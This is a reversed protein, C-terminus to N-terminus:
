NSSQAPPFDKLLSRAQGTAGTETMSKAEVPSLVPSNWLVENTKGDNVTIALEVYDVLPPSVSQNAQTPMSDVANKQQTHLWKVNVIFDSGSGQEQYGLLKLQDRITQAVQAPFPEENPGNISFTKEQSLTMARTIPGPATDCGSFNVALFLAFISTLLSTSPTKM